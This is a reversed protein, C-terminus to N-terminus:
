TTNQGEVFQLGFDGIRTFGAEDTGEYSTIMGDYTRGTLGDEVTVITDQGIVDTFSERFTNREADTGVNEHRREQSPSLLSGIDCDDPLVQLM